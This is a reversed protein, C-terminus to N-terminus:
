SKYSLLLEELLRRVLCQVPNGSSINANCFDLNQYMKQLGPFSFKKYVEQGKPIKIVRQHIYKIVM